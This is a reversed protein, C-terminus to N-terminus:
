PLPDARPNLIRKTTLTPNRFNMLLGLRKNTARLYSSLVAFHIPILTEVSKLEVVITDEILLDLRHTGVQLDLYRVPVVVQREVAIGRRGLEYVLAEEYLVELFGPGLARHVALAAGVVRYSLERAEM